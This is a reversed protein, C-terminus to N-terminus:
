KDEELTVKIFEVFNNFWSQGKKRLGNNPEKDVFDSESADEDQGEESPNEADPQSEM